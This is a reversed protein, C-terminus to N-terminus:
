KKREIEEAFEMVRYSIEEMRKEKPIIYLNDLITMRISEVRKPNSPEEAEVLTDEILLDLTGTFTQQNNIADLEIDLDIVDLIEQYAFLKERRSLERPYELFLLRTERLRQDVAHILHKLFQTTEDPLDPHAFGDLVLLCFNPADPMKQKRNLKEVLCDCLERAWRSGVSYQDPMADTDPLMLDRDIRRIMADPYFSSPIEDRLNIYCFEFNLYQSVYEIFYQSCTKGAGLPGNIIGFRKSEADGLTEIYARFQARGLFPRKANLILAQLPNQQRDVHDIYRISLRKTEELNNPELRIATRVLMDLWGHHEAHRVMEPIIIEPKAASSIHILEKGAQRVLKELTDEQTFVKRFEAVMLDRQRENLRFLKTQTNLIQKLTTHYATVRDDKMVVKVLSRLKGQQGMVNILAKVTGFLNQKNEPFTGPAIQASEALERLFDISDGIDEAM